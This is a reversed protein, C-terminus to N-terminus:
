PESLEEEVIDVTQMNTHTTKGKDVGGDFAMVADETPALPAPATAKHPLVPPPTAAKLGLLQMCTKRAVKAGFAKSVLALSVRRFPPELCAVAIKAYLGEQILDQPTTTFFHGFPCGDLGPDNEHVLVIEIKREIAAQVEAILKRGAVGIFTHLNLYLMFYITKPKTMLNLVDANKALAATAGVTAGVTAGLISANAGSMRNEGGVLGVAEPDSTFNADVTAEVRAWQPSDKKAGRKHASGSVLSAKLEEVFEGVGPNNASVFVLVDQSLEYSLNQVAGPHYLERQTYVKAAYQPSAALIGEGILRTSM